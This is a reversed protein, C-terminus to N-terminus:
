ATKRSFALLAMEDLLKTEAKDAERRLEDRRHEAARRVAEADQHATVWTARATDAVGRARQAEREARRVEVLARHHALEIVDWQSADGGKREDRLAEARAQAAVAAAQRAASEAVGFAQAKQEENRERLKVVADLRTKVM